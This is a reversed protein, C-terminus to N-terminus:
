QKEMWDFLREFGQRTTFKDRYKYHWNFKSNDIGRALVGSPKELDYEYNPEIGAHECLWDAVQQVTVVEDSAINVEGNYQDSSMVEYIKELADQIYLFTRTQKGNGWIQIPKGTQKAELVKHTIAPPFKAREGEWSQGEGFVTNLIGVRVDLPAEKALLIMMLKEWGYMQDSNAPILMDERLQPTHGETAQINVPYVCASAPYFLRKVGAAKCAELVNLDIRMNDIFPQYNHKNFFGVGGMNAAFHFVWDIDQFISESYRRLDRTVPRVKHRKDELFKLMHSGIFGSVGTVAVKM